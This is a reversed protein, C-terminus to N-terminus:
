RGEDEDRGIAELRAKQSAFSAAYRSEDLEDLGALRPQDREVFEHVLGSVFYRYHLDVRVGLRHLRVHSNHSLPCLLGIRLRKFGSYPDLHEATRGVRNEVRESLLRPVAHVDADVTFM